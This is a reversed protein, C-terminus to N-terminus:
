WRIDWNIEFWCSNLNFELQCTTKDPLIRSTWALPNPEPANCKSCLYFPSRKWCKNASTGPKSQPSDSRRLYQFLIDVSNRLILSFFCAHWMGQLLPQNNTPWCIVLRTTMTTMRHKKEKLIEAEDNLSIRHIVIIADNIRCRYSRHTPIRPQLVYWWNMWLCELHKAVEWSFCGEFMKGLPALISSYTIKLDNMWLNLDPWTFQDEM